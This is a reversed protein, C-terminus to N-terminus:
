IIIKKIMYIKAWINIKKMNFGYYNLNKNNGRSITYLAYIKYNKKYEKKIKWNRNKKIKM